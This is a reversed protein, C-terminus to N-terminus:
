NWVKVQDTDLHDVGTVVCAQIGGAKNEGADAHWVNIEQPVYGAEEPEATGRKRATYPLWKITDMVNTAYRRRDGQLLSQKEWEVRSGKEKAWTNLNALYTDIDRAATGTERATHV